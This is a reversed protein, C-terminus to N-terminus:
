VINVPSHLWKGCGLKLVNEDHWFLARCGETTVGRVGFSRKGWGRVSVFRSRYIQRDQVNQIFSIICYTIKQLQNLECLMLNEFKM